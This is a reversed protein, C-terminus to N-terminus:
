PATSASPGTESQLQDFQVQKLNLNQKDFSDWLQNFTRRLIPHIMDGAIDALPKLVFPYNTIDSSPVNVRADNIQHNGYLIQDLDLTRSIFQNKSDRVRGHQAELDRLYQRIEHPSMDTEIAVVLNYFNEGSFGEAFSEYVPSVLIDGFEENLESIVRPIHLHKDINSGVGIFVTPM